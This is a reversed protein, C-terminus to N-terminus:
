CSLTANLNTAIHALKSVFLSYLPLQCILVIQM